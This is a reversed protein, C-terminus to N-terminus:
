KGVEKLLEDLKTSMSELQANTAEATAKIKALLAQTEDLKASQGDVKAFLTRLHDTLFNQLDWVRKETWALYYGASHKERKALPANPTPKILSGIGTVAQRVPDTSVSNGKEMNLIKAAQILGPIQAIRLSGPCVHTHNWELPKSNNPDTFQAHWGVGTGHPGTATTLPFGHETSLWAILRALAAFQARNWPTTSPKGGDWTEISVFGYRTGNSLWSNGDLQCDARVETDMMQEISGDERVYFHSEVGASRGEFFSHLSRSDSVATHLVVGVPKIRPQRSNASLPNWSAGPYRAVTTREPSHIVSLGLRASLRPFRSRGARPQGVSHVDGYSRM